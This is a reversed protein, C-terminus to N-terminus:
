ETQYVFKLFTLWTVRNFQKTETGHQVSGSACQFNISRECFSCIEKKKEMDEEPSRSFFANIVSPFFHTRINNYNNNFYKWILTGSVVNCKRGSACKAEPGKM